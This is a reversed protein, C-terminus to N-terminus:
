AEQTFCLKCPYVTVARESAGSMGRHVFYFCLTLLSSKWFESSFESTIMDSLWIWMWLDSSNEGKSISMRHETRNTEFVICCIESYTLFHVSSCCIVKTCLILMKAWLMQTTFHRKQTGTLELFILLNTSCELLSHFWMSFTLSAANESLLSWVVTVVLDSSSGRNGVAQVASHHYQCTAKDPCIHGIFYIHQFIVSKHTYVSYVFIGFTYM